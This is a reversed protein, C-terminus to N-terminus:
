LQLYNPMGCHMREKSANRGAVIIGHHSELFHPVCFTEGTGTHDGPLGMGAGVPADFVHKGSV